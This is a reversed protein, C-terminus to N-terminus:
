LGLFVADLLFAIVTVRKQRISFKWASNGAISTGFRQVPVITSPVVRPRTLSPRTDKSATAPETHTIQFGGARRFKSFGLIPRIKSFARRQDHFLTKVAIGHQVPLAMRDHSTRRRRSRVTFSNFNLLLKATCMLRKPNRSGVECVRKTLRRSACHGM